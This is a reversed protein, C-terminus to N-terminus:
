DKIADGDLDGNAAAEPFLIKANGAHVDGECTKIFIGDQSIHAAVRMEAQSLDFYVLRFGTKAVYCERVRRTIDNAAYRPLNMLNPQKCALRGTVPGLRWGAHVRGDIDIPVRLFTSETKMAGRWRLILDSLRGIKDRGGRLSELVKRATSPMGRKTPHIVLCG